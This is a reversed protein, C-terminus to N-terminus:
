RCSCTQRYRNLLRLYYLSLANTQPNMVNILWRRLVGDKLDPIYPARLKM